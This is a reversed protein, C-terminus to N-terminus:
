KNKEAVNLLKQLEPTIITDTPYVAANYNGQQEVVLASKSSSLMKPSKYKAKLHVPLIKYASYSDYDASDDFLGAKVAVFGAILLIFATLTIRQGIM